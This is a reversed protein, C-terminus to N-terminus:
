ADYTQAQKKRMDGEYRNRKRPGAVEAFDGAWIRLKEVLEMQGITLSTSTV